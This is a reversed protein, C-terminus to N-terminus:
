AAQWPDLTADYQDAPLRQSEPGPTYTAVVAPTPAVEHTRGRALALWHRLNEALPVRGHLRLLALKRSPAAPAVGARRLLLVDLKAAAALLSAPATTHPPCAVL